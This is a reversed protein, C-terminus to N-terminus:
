RAPKKQESLIEDYLQRRWREAQERRIGIADMLRQGHQLLETPCGPAPPGLVQQADFDFPFLRCILPRVAATLRCGDVGLFVCDENPQQKLVRRRGDDRFVGDRWIPDDDQDAYDLNKVPRYEYFDGLGTAAKIRAVDGRTVFIETAQCCTKTYRACRACLSEHGSM